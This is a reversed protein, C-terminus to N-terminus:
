KLPTFDMLHPQAKKAINKLSKATEKDIIELYKKACEKASSFYKEGLVSGAGRLLLFKDIIREGYLMKVNNNKCINTISTCHHNFGRNYLTEYFLSPSNKNGTLGIRAYRDFMTWQNPYLFWILKSVGSVPAHPKTKEKRYDKHDKAIKICIHARQILGEPWEEENIADVLVKLAEDNGITRRVGYEKVIREAVPMPIKKEDEIFARHIGDTVFWNRHHEVVGLLALEYIEEKTLNLGEQQQM